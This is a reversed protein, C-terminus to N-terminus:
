GRSGGGKPNWGPYDAETSVPLDAHTVLQLSLSLAAVQGDSGLAAERAIEARLVDAADHNTAPHITPANM